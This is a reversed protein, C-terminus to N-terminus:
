DLIEFRDAAFGPPGPSTDERHINGSMAVRLADLFADVSSVAGVAVLEVTGDSCNRVTGGIPFRRAVRQATMRFGVGQVRGHYIVRRSDLGATM